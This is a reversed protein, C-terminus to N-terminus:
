YHHKQGFRYVVGGSIGFFERTETGFHELILDPSLRIALYSTRNLDLSGGLAFMPKTRNTYLGVLAPNVTVAEDFVGHSVGALAHLDIAAYQNKPGRVQVGGMGTERYVLPRNLGYPNPFVPTTGADGRFDATVGYRQTLWMTGQAEVGGLNMRQPLNQGAQFNAFSLGVYGEYRNTYTVPPAANLKGQARATEAGAIWGLLVFAGAVWKRMMCNAMVRRTGCGVTDTAQAKHLLHAALGVIEFISGAPLEMGLGEM